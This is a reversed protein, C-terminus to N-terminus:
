FNLPPPPPLDTCISVNFMDLTNGHYFDPLKASESGRNRHLIHLFVDFRKLATKEFHSSNSKAVEFSWLKLVKQIVTKM